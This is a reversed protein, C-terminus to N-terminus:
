RCLGDACVALLCIFICVCEAWVIEYLTDTADTVRLFMKKESLM